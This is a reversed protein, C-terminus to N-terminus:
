NVVNQTIRFSNYCLLVKAQLRCHFFKLGFFLVRVQLGNSSESANRATASSRGTDNRSRFNLATLEFLYNLMSFYNLM